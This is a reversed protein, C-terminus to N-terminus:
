FICAGATLRTMLSETVGLDCVLLASMALTFLALPLMWAHLLPGVFQRRLLGASVLCAVTMSVAQVALYGALGHSSILPQASAAIALLQTGGIALLVGSRRLALFVGTLVSFLMMPTFALLALAGVSRAEAFLAGFVTEILLPWLTGLGLTIMLS